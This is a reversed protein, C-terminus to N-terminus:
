LYLFLLASHTWAFADAADVDNEGGGGADAAASPSDRRARGGNFIGNLPSKGDGSSRIVM